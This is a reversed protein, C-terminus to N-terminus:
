QKITPVNHLIIYYSSNIQNDYREHYQNVVKHPKDFTTHRMHEMTIDIRFVFPEKSLFSTVAVNMDLQISHMIQIRSTILGTKLLQENTPLDFGYNLVRRSTKTVTKDHEPLAWGWTWVNFENNLKGIVDYESEYIKNEHADFFIIKHTDYDFRYKRFTKAINYYKFSNDDYYKLANGIIHSFNETM